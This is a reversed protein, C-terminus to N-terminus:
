SYEYLASSGWRRFPISGPNGTWLRVSKPRQSGSLASRLWGGPKLAGVVGAGSAVGATAFAGLQLLSTRVSRLRLQVILNGRQVNWPREEEAATSGRSGSSGTPLPMGYGRITHREGDDGARVRCGAPLVDVIEGCITRVRVAQMRGLLRRTGPRLKSGTRPSLASAGRREHIGALANHWAPLWRTTLLDEDGSYVARSYSRVISWRLRLLQRGVPQMRRPVVLRQLAEQEESVEVLRMMLEVGAGPLMLRVIDGNKRGPPLFHRLMNRRASGPGFLLQGLDLQIPDWGGLQRLTCNVAVSLQRTPPEWRQSHHHPQSALTIDYQRRLAPDSLCSYAANILEFQRQAQMQSAAGQRHKDPHHRLALRKYAAKLAAADADRPVALVDYHTPAAACQVSLLLLWRFVRSPAAAM